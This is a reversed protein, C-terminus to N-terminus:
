EKLLTKLVALRDDIQKGGCDCSSINRDGGCHPCLGKCDEKCLYVMDINFLLEPIMVDEPDIEDGQYLFTDEEEIATGDQPMLVMDVDVSLPIELPQLCRACKTSLITCINGELRLIDTHNQIEGEYTVSNQLPKEGNIMEESLDVTGDFPIHEVKASVLKRLDIKM